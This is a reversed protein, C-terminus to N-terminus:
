WYLKWEGHQLLGHGQLTIREDDPAVEDIEGIQHLLHGSHMALAGSTYPHRMRELLVTLDAAEVRGPIRDAFRRFREYTVDWVNLWGGRRPLRIPLTFSLPRTLDLGTADSPWARRYQLDFHVSASPTVFIAPALWIHFGPLALGAAFSVPARLRASLFEAVREHLWAFSGHLVPNLEAARGRYVAPDDLYSAAGLTYFASAPSQLGRAIWHARLEKIQSEVRACEATSLLQLSTIM